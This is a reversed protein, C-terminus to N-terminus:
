TVSQRGDPYNNKTIRRNLNYQKRRELTLRKRGDKGPTPNHYHIVKGGGIYGGMHWFLGSIRRKIITGPIFKEERMIKEGTNTEKTHEKL